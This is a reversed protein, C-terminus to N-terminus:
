RWALTIPNFFTDLVPSLYSHDEPIYGRWDYSSGITLLPFIDTDNAQIDYAFYEPFVNM